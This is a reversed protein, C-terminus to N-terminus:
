YCDESSYVNEAVDALQLCTGAYTTKNNAKYLYISRNAHTHFVTLIIHSQLM